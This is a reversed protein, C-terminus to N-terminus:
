KLVSQVYPLFYHGVDDHNVFTCVHESTEIDNTKLDNILHVIHEPYTHELKSYVLHVKTTTGKNSKVMGPIIGNLYNKEKEGAEKGMMGELIKRHVKVGLWDGIYYQCAGSFIANVKFLLGYFLAASGGKSTGATYVYKYHGKELYNKILSSTQEFPDNKGNEYLYYSGRYGWYDGIYLRDMNFNQFGRVYNYIPKEKPPFASFCIILSDSNCGYFLYRLKGKGYRKELLKYKIINTLTRVKRFFVKITM